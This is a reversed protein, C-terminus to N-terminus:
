HGLAGYMSDDGYVNLDAATVTGSQVDKNFNDQLDLLFRRQQRRALEDDINFNVDLTFGQPARSLSGSPDGKHGGFGFWTPTNDRMDKIAQGLATKADGYGSDFGKLAKVMNTASEPQKGTLDHVLGQVFSMGPVLRMAGKAFNLLSIKGANAIVFQAEKLGASILEFGAKLIPPLYDKLWNIGVKVNRLLPVVYYSWYESLFRTGEKWAAPILEWIKNLWIVAAEIQPFNDYIADRIESFIPSLFERWLAQLYGEICEIYGQIKPIAVNIIDEGLKTLFGNILDTAKTFDGEFAAKLGGMLPQLYEAAKQIFRSIKPGVVEATEQAWAAIKPITDALKRIWPVIYPLFPALIVDVLAGLIQFISGLTSTFVQSQKLVSAITLNIGATAAYEKIFNRKATKKAEEALKVQEKILKNTKNDGGGAAGAAGDQVEVIVRNDEAM